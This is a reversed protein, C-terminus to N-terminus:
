LKLNSIESTVHNPLESRVRVQQVYYMTCTRSRRLTIHSTVLDQGQVHRSLPPYSSEMSDYTFGRLSTMRSSAVVVAVIHQM